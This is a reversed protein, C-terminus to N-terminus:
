LRQLDLLIIFEGQPSKVAMNAATGGSSGQINANADNAPLALLHQNAEAPLLQLSQELQRLRDNQETIIANQQAVVDQLQHVQSVYMISHERSSRQAHLQLVCRVFPM